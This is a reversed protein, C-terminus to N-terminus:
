PMLDVLFSVDRSRTSPQRGWSTLLVRPRSRAGTEPKIKGDLQQDSPWAAKVSCRQHRRKEGAYPSTANRARKVLRSLESQVRARLLFFGERVHTTPSIREEPPSDVFPHSHLIPTTFRRPSRQETYAVFSRDRHCAPRLDLIILDQVTLVLATKDVGVIRM